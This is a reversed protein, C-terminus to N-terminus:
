IENKRSFLENQYYDRNPKYVDERLVYPNMVTKPTNTNTFKSDDHNRKLVCHGMEHMMLSERDIKNFQDWSSKRITIQPTDGGAIRCVALQAPNAIDGFRIILDEVILPDKRSSETEFLTVYDEFGAVELKNPRGCGTTLVACLCFFLSLKLARNM